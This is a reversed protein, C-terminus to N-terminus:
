LSTIGEADLGTLSFRRVEIRHCSARVQQECEQGYVGFYHDLYANLRAISRNGFGQADLYDIACKAPLPLHQYSDPGPM